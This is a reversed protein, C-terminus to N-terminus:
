RRFIEERHYALYSRHKEKLGDIRVSLSIDLMRLQEGSIQSSVQIRGNDTFNIYGKDFVADYNPSLLLGNYPDLRERNNSDRWPKIHSARLLDEVALGTVCCRGAWIRILDQRFKGQGVRSLVLAEKLTVSNESELIGQVIPNQIEPVEEIAAADLLLLAAQTPLRFLYGQSGMGVRTLPSYKHPLIALLDSALEPVLVRNPPQQFNVDVRWGEEKWGIGPGRRFPRISEYATSTAVGIAYIQQKVYSLIVDGVRVEGMNAWHFPNGFDNPLPSWLYGNSIEHKYTRNQAVWWYAM